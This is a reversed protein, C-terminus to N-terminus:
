PVPPYDGGPVGFYEELSGAGTERLERALAPGVYRLHWPEASYGTREENEPTYRIVFGFRWANGALWRGGPTGAFCPEFDCRGDAPTVIDVALGTQHESHGPRASIRDAAAEGQAAVLQKHVSDQYGYSRFASAIKFGLGQRDSADLLRTLPGAAPDAVQYGRVISLEPRFQSPTIPHSKNVIVWTSSPDTTSHASRDFTRPVPRDAQRSHQATVERQAAPPAQAPAPAPAAPDSRLAWWGGALLAGVLLTLVTTVIPDRRTRRM